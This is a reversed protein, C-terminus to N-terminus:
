KPLTDKYDPYKEAVLKEYAAYAETLSNYREGSTHAKFASTNRIHDSVAVYKEKKNEREATTTESIYFGGDARSVIVPIKKGAGVENTDVSTWFLYRQSSSVGSGQALYAWTGHNLLSNEGIQKQVEPVMTSNPCKSDLEFYSTNQLKTSLLNSKNLPGHLDENFNIKPNTNVEGGKWYFVIGTSPTYTIECEGNATPVGKWHDTDGEWTYHKIGAITVPNFSQWDDRKQELKVTRSVGAAGDIMSATRVELYAERVNTIDITEHSREIYQLLTPVLIAALIGMIVSAILLEVLTFGNVKNQAKSMVVAVSRKAADSCLPFVAYLFRQMFGAQRSQVYDAHLNETMNGLFGKGYM